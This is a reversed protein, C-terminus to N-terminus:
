GVAPAIADSTRAANGWYWDITAQERREALWEEFLAQKVDGRTSADLCAPSISLVRVLAYGTDTALPGVVDGVDAAFVELLEAPAKGRSVVDFLGHPSGGQREAPALFRAQAVAYFDAAGGVIQAHAERASSEDPFEIRAISVRDFDARHGEFYADVRGDTVRDRLKAVKVQDGVYEELKEHSMGHQEMWRHTDQATYLKHARRFGDMALQVDADSIEIPDRELTEQILCVNVLRDVIRAEDWIFDICAMAQDVKLVTSNVRLLDADSWRHAGRLPWPVARDPSFSVSLTGEGPLQLLVDYHLSRDYTQEEWALDMATEGHWEQLSRLRARAEAPRVGDRSLGMLYDFVHPLAERWQESM